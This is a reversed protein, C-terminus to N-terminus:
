FNYLNLHVFVGSGSYANCMWCAEVELQGLAVFIEDNVIHKM